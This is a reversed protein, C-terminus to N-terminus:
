GAVKARVREGWLQMLAHKGTALLAARTEDSAVKSTAVSMEAADAQLLRRQAALVCDVPDSFALWDVGAERELMSKLAEVAKRADAANRLFRTHDIGTRGKIFALLAEDSKNRVVGLHWGSIWLAQLKGAYPGSLKGRGRPAGKGRMHAIVREHEAPSMDRLSDKGVVHVLMTRYTAEDLGLDRKAVHIAAIAKSM